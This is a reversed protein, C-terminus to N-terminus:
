SLFGLLAFFVVLVTMMFIQAGTGVFVSLLMPSFAPPRFVEAHVLKWGTEEQTEEESLQAEYQLNYRAIDKHLTRLIIMALMGSLFLVILTSNLISFWHIQDDPSGKLYLDWRSSWRIDSEGM